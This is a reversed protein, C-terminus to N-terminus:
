RSLADMGSSDAGAPADGGTQRVRVLVKNPACVLAQGPRSVPGMRECIGLPCGADRIRAAGGEVVVTLESAAGHITITTDRALEPAAVVQDGVRVVAQLTAGSSPSWGLRQAYIMAGVGGVALLLLLDILTMLPPLRFQRSM